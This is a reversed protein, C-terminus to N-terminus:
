YAIVVIIDVVVVLVSHVSSNRADLLIRPLSDPRSTSPLWTLLESCDYITNQLYLLHYFHPNLGCFSQFYMGVSVYGIYTYITQLDMFLVIRYVELRSKSDSLEPETRYSRNWDLKIHISTDQTQSQWSCCSRKKNQILVPESAPSHRNIHANALEPASAPIDLLSPNWKM